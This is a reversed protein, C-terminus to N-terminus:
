RTQVMEALPRGAHEKAAVEDLVCLATMMDGALFHEYDRLRRIADRM